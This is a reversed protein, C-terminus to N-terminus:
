RRATFRATPGTNNPHNCGRSTPNSERGYFFPSRRLTGRGFLRKVLACVLRSGSSRLDSSGSQLHLWLDFTALLKSRLTAPEFRSSSKEMRESRLERYHRCNADHRRSLRPQSSCRHTNHCFTISTIM